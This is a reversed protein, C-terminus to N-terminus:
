NAGATKCTEVVKVAVKGNVTVANGRAVLQGGAYVDVGDDLLCDLEVVSGPRLNNAQEAGLWCRGLEIRLMSEGNTEM